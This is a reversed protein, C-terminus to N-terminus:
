RVTREWGMRLPQGCQLLRDAPATGRSEFIIGRRGLTAADALRAIGPGLLRFAGTASDRLYSYSGPTM